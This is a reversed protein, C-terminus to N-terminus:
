RGDFESETLSWEHYRGDPANLPMRLGLPLSRVRLIQSEKLERFGAYRTDLSMGFSSKWTEEEWWIGGITGDRRPHSLEDLFVLLAATARASLTAVRTSTWYHAPLKFYIHFRLDDGEETRPLPAGPRTYPIPRGEADRRGSEEMLHVVPYRGPRSELRVYGHADLWKMAAAIRRKGKATAREEKEFASGGTIEREPDVLGLLRAWYAYPKAVAFPEAKAHWLLSLLLNLRVAGGRGANGGPGDHSADGRVLQALRPTGVRYPHVVFARRVHAASVGSKERPKLDAATSAAQRQQITAAAESLTRADSFITIRKSRTSPTHSTPFPTTDSQQRLLRVVDM